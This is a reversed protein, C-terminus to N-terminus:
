WPTRTNRTRTNRREQSISIMLKEGTTVTEESFPDSEFMTTYENYLEPMLRSAYTTKKMHQGGTMMTAADAKVLSSDWFWWYVKTSWLRVPHHINNHPQQECEASTPHWSLLMSLSLSTGQRYLCAGATGNLPNWQIRQASFRVDRKLARTSAVLWPWLQFDHFFIAAARGPDPMNWSRSTHRWINLSPYLSRQVTSHTCSWDIAQENVAKPDYLLM